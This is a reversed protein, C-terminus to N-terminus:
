NGSRVIITGNLDTRYVKIDREDLKDLTEEAPHGYVNDKGVSIVAIEPTLNNLLEESTSNHSGHHGVILVEIDPLQFNDMLRLETEKDMDGTILTDFEGDSVLISLGLENGSNGLPPYVAITRNDDSISITEEQSIMIVDTATNLIEDRLGDADDADEPVILCKVDIQQTLSEVGSAHDSHFHTLILYDIDTLGFSGLQKVAEDAAHYDGGCDVVVSLDGVRMVICQGQGVDVIAINTSKVEKEGALMAVCLLICISGLPLYIRRRGLNGWVAIAVIIYTCCLWICIYINGTYLVSIEMSGILTVIFIFYKAFFWPIWMLVTAIGPFAIGIVGVTLGLIFVLSLAWLSLLNSIPSLLAIRGFYFALLPTPFVIASISTAVSASIFQFPKDLWARKSRLYSRLGTKIPQAFLMIGAVSGYSLQLSVSKISYPNFALLLALSVALSTAGDYERDCAPGILAFISMIGARSVSPTFGTMAMFFLIVPIGIRAKRKRRNGLLTILSVLFSMHMGSVVVTHSLGSNNLKTTLGSDIDSRDGTIIATIIGAVDEPFTRKISNKLAQAAYQPFYKVSARNSSIIEANGAQYALLFVGKAMVSSFDEGDESALRLNAKCNIVDGPCIQEYEGIIYLYTKLKETGLIGTVKQGYQTQESYETATVSIEMTSGDLEVAPERYIKIYTCNIIISILLGSLILIIRTRMDGRIAIAAVIM